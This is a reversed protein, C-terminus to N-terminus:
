SRRTRDGEMTEPRRPYLSRIFRTVTAVYDHPHTLHPVHGAGAYTRREARGLSEALKSIISEFWPPSQDGQTLLAPVSFRSLATLHLDAWQPDRQEDLFTSANGIFTNRAQEPLQEWMGPGLAVEEVFRRTGEPIDGAELLELVSEVKDQVDKMLPQLDPDEAVVGMLPPEHVILSRFLEQRRSALGVAISAGFSNGAVHAPAFELAEMLAALDDEDEQRSGQTAVRESQSHGRRDYTLVRFSEALGPLIFQWNNHDAWSGHVLVLPDGDGIVEYFLKVGDVKVESM